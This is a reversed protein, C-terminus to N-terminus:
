GLSHGKFLRVPTGGHGSVTRTRYFLDIIIIIIFHSGSERIPIHYYNSVFITDRYIKSLNVLFSQIVNSSIHFIFGVVFVAILRINAVTLSFMGVGDTSSKALCRSALRLPASALGTCDAGAYGPESDKRSSVNGM